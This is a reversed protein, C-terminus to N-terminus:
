TNGPAYGFIIRLEYIEANCWCMGTGQQMIRNIM